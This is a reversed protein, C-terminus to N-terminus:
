VARLFAAPLVWKVPASMTIGYVRDRAMGLRRFVVRHFYEGIAGPSSERESSWTFGGDNSYKLFISPRGGGSLGVGKEMDIELSEHSVLQNEISIHNTVIERKIEKGDEDYIDLSMEYISGNSYSGVYLNENFFACGKAMCRINFGTPLLLSGRRHWEGTSLDYVYTRDGQLNLVYFSHGEDTYVYADAEEIHTAKRIEHEIAHSSIRVVDYGTGMFVAGYGGLGNGIWFVQNGNTVVSYPAICGVEKVTGSIRRWPLNPTGVNNWLETSTKGIMWITGNSTKAIAQLTDASYEATAFDLAAWTTGDYSASYQFQGTTANNVMFYGDTFLCHTPNEPFGEATIASLANTELNLIYGRAGDVIFLQSGNDCVSVGGRSSQLTGRSVLTENVLMEFLTEGIIAFLRDTSTTYLARMTGTSGSDVAERYGPTGILAKIFKTKGTDGMEPYFNVLDTCSIIKARGTATGNVIDFIM